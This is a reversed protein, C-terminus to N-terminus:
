FTKEDTEGLDELDEFTLPKLEHHINKLNNEIPKFSEFIDKAKQIVNKYTNLGKDIIKELDDKILDVYKSFEYERKELDKEKANLAYDYKDLMAKTENQEAQIERLREEEAKLHEAIRILEKKDNEIKKREKTVSEKEKSVKKAITKIAEFRENVEAHAAKVSQERMTVEQEKIELKEAKEKLEKDKQTQEASINMLNDNAKAIVDSIAKTKKALSKESKKIKNTADQYVSYKMGDDTKKDLADMKQFKLEPFRNQLHELLGQQDMKLIARSMIEKASLRGDDTLPIFEFHLHPKSEDLHIVASILNDDDYKSKRAKLFEYAEKLVEIQEDETGDAILGGLNVTASIMAVADKKPKFKKTYHQEIAKDFRKVYSGKFRNDLLFINDKTREDNINKNKHKKGETREVHHQLGYMNGKKHKEFHLAITSYDMIKGKRKKLGQELDLM